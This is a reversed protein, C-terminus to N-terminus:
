FIYGMSLTMSQAARVPGYVYWSRLGRYEASLVLYTRPRLIFNGGFSQNRILYLYPSTTVVPTGERVEGADASDIGFFANLEAISRFRAAVQAWGGEADLAKAQGDNYATVINKFTGGGLDGIGRGRYFEGSVEIPKVIPFRWDATGAWFDFKENGYFLQRTYYGNAALEFPRAKEGWEWATRAEYGPQLNEREIGYAVEGTIDGSEPDLVGLGLVARSGHAMGIRQEVTLQPLWTWLNGAWALSPEGVTAFSTPSLPSIFPTELGATVQTNPWDLNIEATRLHFYNYSNPTASIYSKNDFFDAVIQASTRASFLKPGAGDIGLQTQNLTAGLSHHPYNTNRYVAILPLVPNDVSGDVVYSNFLVMGTLSVPYRSYSEVKTQQLTGVQSQTVEQDEKVQNVAERLTAVSASNEGEADVQKRLTSVEGQLEEIQRRAEELQGRMEDLKKLVDAMGPQDTSAAPTSAAPTAPAGTTVGPVAAAQPPEEARIPILGYSLGLVVALLVFPFGMRGAVHATM